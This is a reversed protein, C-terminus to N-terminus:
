IDSYDGLEEVSVEEREHREVLDQKKVDYVKNLEYVASITNTTLPILFLEPSRLITAFCTAGIITGSIFGTALGLCQYFHIENSEGYKIESYTRSIFSPIVNPAILTGFLVGNFNHLFDDIHKLPDLLSVSSKLIEGYIEQKTPKYVEKKLETGNNM